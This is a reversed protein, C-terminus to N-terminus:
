NYNVSFTYPSAGHYVGDRVNEDFIVSLLITTIDISVASNKTVILEYQVTQEGNMGYLRPQLGSIGLDYCDDRGNNLIFRTGDPSSLAMSFINDPSVITAQAM